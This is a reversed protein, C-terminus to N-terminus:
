DGDGQTARHLAIQTTLRSGSTAVASDAASRAVACARVTRSWWASIM